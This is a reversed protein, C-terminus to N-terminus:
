NLEPKQKEILKKYKRKIYLAHRRVEKAHEKEIINTAAKIVKLAVSTQLSRSYNVTLNGESDVTITLIARM